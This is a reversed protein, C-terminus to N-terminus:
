RMIKEMKKEVSVPLKLGSILDFALLIRKLNLIQEVDDDLFVVLDDAFQLHNITCSSENYIPKFGGILGMSAARKILLSLVEVVMIFIFPSIPDGQKVGKGSRVMTYDLCSWSINNFAKELYVKVVLGEMDARERADILESAILIGDTNERSGVFAGQFELIITPFVLKLREALLKSLIKYVGGILIIPMFNHMSNEGDCKPILIINTCNLRWDLSGKVEFEKIVEMLDVKIIDWVEKFFEM